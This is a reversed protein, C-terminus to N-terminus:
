RAPHDIPVIGAPQTGSHSVTPRETGRRTLLALGGGMLLVGSGALTTPVSLASGAVGGAIPGVVMGAGYALNFLAYVGAYAQSDERDAGVRAFAVLAPVLVFSYAVAFLVLIVGVGVISGPATILPLLGGMVILGGAMLRGPTFRGVVAGVVPSAIGHALTAAGFLLGIAVTGARLRDSLNLPLLPELMSLASAGLFVSSATYRIGRDRLLSRSLLASARRSGRPEVIFVALLACNGAALAAAFLFPARHGAAQQLVGGVPPGMILGASMCAMAAGMTQGLARAPVIAAIAALGATWIAAAAVGQLLRALLLLPYSQALAFLVTAIALGVGGALLAPRRGVRDSLSGAVPTAALLGVAYVGFLVGIAGRGAGLHRAYVPLVPVVISYLLADVFLACCVSAVVARRRRVVPIESTDADV